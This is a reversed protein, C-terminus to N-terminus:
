VVDIETEDCARGSISIQFGRRHTGTLSARRHAVYRYSVAQSVRHSKLGAVCKRSDCAGSAGSGIRRRGLWDGHGECMSRRSM